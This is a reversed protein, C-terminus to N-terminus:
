RAASTESEIREWARELSDVVADAVSDVDTPSVLITRCGAARGAVVDSESDGIMWSHALDIGHDRAADLIMGPAPKRCACGADSAHPCYYIADFGAGSREELERQMSAHIGHLASESMLERAIGRQNTILIAAYGAEHARRLVPFIEPLFEFEEWRRVYDDIRRRNVIGDRDFFVARRSRGTQESNM